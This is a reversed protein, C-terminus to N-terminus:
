MKLASCLSCTVGRAAASNKHQSVCMKQVIPMVIRCGVYTAWLINSEQLPWGLLAAERM